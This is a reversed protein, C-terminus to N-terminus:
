YRYQSRGGSSSFGCGQLREPICDDTPCCWGLPLLFIKGKMFILQIECTIPTRIDYELTVTGWLFSFSLTCSTPLSTWSYLAITSFITTTMSLTTTAHYIQLSAIKQMNSLMQTYNCGLISAKVVYCM